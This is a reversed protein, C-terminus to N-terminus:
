FYHVPHSTKRMDSLLIFLPPSSASAGHRAELPLSARAPSASTRTTEAVRRRRGQSLETPHLHGDGLVEQVVRVTPRLCRTDQCPSCKATTAGHPFWLILRRKNGLGGEAWSLAAGHGLCGAPTLDQGGM